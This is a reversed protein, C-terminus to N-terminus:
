FVMRLMLTKESFGLTLSKLQLKHSEIVVKGKTTIVELHSGFSLFGEQYWHEDCPPQGM